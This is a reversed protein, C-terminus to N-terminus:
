KYARVLTCTISGPDQMAMACALSCALMAMMVIQSQITKPIGSRIRGCFSSRNRDAPILPCLLTSVSTEQSLTRSEVVSYILSQPPIRNCFEATGAAPGSSGQSLSGRPGLHQGLWMTIVRTALSIGLCTSLQTCMLAM